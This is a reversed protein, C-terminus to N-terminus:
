RDKHGNCRGKKLPPAREFSQASRSNVFNAIPWIVVFCHTMFLSFLRLHSSRNIHFDRLRSVFSGEGRAPSPCPSSPFVTMVKMIQATEITMVTLPGALRWGGRHHLGNVYDAAKSALFVVTGQGFRRAHGVTRGPHPGLIEANRAQRRSAVAATNDTAMYGPAIANVNIGHKAWENALLMTIGKVREQLRHLVARPHRGPLLADLRHQHDQRGAGAGGDPRAVAQSLFFLTRKSNLNIVDDWDKETFDLLPARPHHGRQQGPHRHPRLAELLRSPSWARSRSSARAPRGARARLQTGTAEVAAATEPASAVTHTVGVIDAGAQALAVAM